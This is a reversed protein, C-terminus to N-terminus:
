DNQVQSPKYMIASILFVLQAIGQILFGVLIPMTFVAVRLTVLTIKFSKNGTIAVTEEMQKMLKYTCWTAGLGVAYAVVSMTLSVSIKDQYLYGIVAFLVAIISLVTIGIFSKWAGKILGLVELERYTLVGVIFGVLSFIHGIKPLYGLINFILAVLALKNLKSM